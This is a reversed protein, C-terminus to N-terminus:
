PSWTVKWGFWSLRSPLLTHDTIVRPGCAGMLVTRLDLCLTVRCRISQKKSELLGYIMHRMMSNTVAKQFCFSFTIGVLQVIISIESIDLLSSKSNLFSM